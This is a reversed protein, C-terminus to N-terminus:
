CRNQALAADKPFTAFYGFLVSFACTESECFLRVITNVVYLGLFFPYQLKRKQGKVRKKSFPM